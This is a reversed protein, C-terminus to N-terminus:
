RSLLEGLLVLDEASFDKLSCIADVCGFAALFRLVDKTEGAEGVRRRQARPTAEGEEEPLVGVLLFDGQRRADQLVRLDTDRCTDRGVACYVLRQGVAKRGSVLQLCERASRCIKSEDAFSYPSIAFSNFRSRVDARSQWDPHIISVQLDNSAEALVVGDPDIIASYGGLELGDVTGCGNCAVLFTQNEIARARLLARWQARRAVPWQASCILLDAGQQCQSRALDPFRLDYCVLCGIQGQPTVIPRPESGASFAKGEGGFAFIQQKRYSGYIGEAGVIYLTNYLHTGQGSIVLEPLSGALICSHRGALSTLEQLIQGTGVALENLRGYAFGTSWMEPLVILAGDTLTLGELGAKVQKLNKAPEALELPFQLFGLSPFLRQAGSM